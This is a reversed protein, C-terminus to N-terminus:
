RNRKELIEKCLTKEFHDLWGNKLKGTKSSFESSSFLEVFYDSYCFENTSLLDTALYMNLRNSDTIYIQVLKDWAISKSVKKSRVINLQEMLFELYSNNEFETTYIGKLLELMKQNSMKEIPIESLFIMNELNSDWDVIPTDSTSVFVNFESPDIGYLTYFSALAHLIKEFEDAKFTFRKFNFNMVENCLDENGDLCLENVIDARNLFESYQADESSGKNKVIKFKTSKVVSSDLLVFWQASPSYSVLSVGMDELVLQELLKRGNLASNDRCAIYLQPYKEKLEQSMNPHFGGSLSIGKANEMLTVSLRMLGYEMSSIQNASFYLGLYSVNSFTDKYSKQYNIMSTINSKKEDESLETTSEEPIFFNKVVVANTYHHFQGDGFHPLEIIPRIKKAVSELWLPKSDSNIHKKIQDTCKLFNNYELTNNNDQGSINNLLTDNKLVVKLSSSNQGISHNVTFLLILLSIIHTSKM